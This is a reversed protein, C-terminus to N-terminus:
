EIEVAHYSYAPFEYPHAKRMAAIVEKIISSAVICEIKIEEVKEVVGQQGIFPKSGDLPRFQGTGLTQWMCSDYNGLRGAGATALAEKVADSHTLPVYVVLFVYSM